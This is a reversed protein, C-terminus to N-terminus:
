CPKAVIEVYWQSAVTASSPARIEVVEEGHDYCAEPMTAGHHEDQPAHEMSCCQYKVLPAVTQEKM